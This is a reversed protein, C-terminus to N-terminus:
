KYEHDTVVIVPHFYYREKPDPMKKGPVAQPNRVRSFGNRLAYGYSGPGGPLYEHVSPIFYLKGSIVLRGSPPSDEAAFNEEEDAAAKRMCKASLEELVEKQESGFDLLAGYLSGKANLRPNTRWIILKGGLPKLLHYIKELTYTGSSNKQLESILRRGKQGNQFFVPKDKFKRYSPAVPLFASWAFRSCAEEVSGGSTYYSSLKRLDLDAYPIEIDNVTQGFYLPHFTKPDTTLKPLQDKIQERWEPLTIGLMASHRLYIFGGTLVLIALVVLVVMGLHVKKGQEIMEAARKRRKIAAKGPSEQAQTIARGLTVKRRLKINYHCAPCTVEQPPVPKGCSPCDQATVSEKHFNARVEGPQASPTSIMTKGSDLEPDIALKPPPKRTPKGIKKKPKTAPKRSSAQAPSASTTAAAPVQVVGKCAPCRIKKGAFDSKLKYNKDCGPCTVKISM